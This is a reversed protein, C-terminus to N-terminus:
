DGDYGFARVYPALTDLVPALDDAYNRWRACARGHVRERVDHMSPTAITEDPAMAAAHDLVADDWPADLFELVRTMVGRTDTTLDEYRYELCDLGLAARQQLWLGMVADYFKAAGELTLFQDM